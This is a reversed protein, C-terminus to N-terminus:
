SKKILDLFAREDLIPIGLQQALEYKKGPGVGAIVYDTKKSVSSSVRGGLKKILDEAEARTLTLTGTLVFQKESLPREEPSQVVREMETTVGAQALKEMVQRTEEEQFFAVVSAAIKPGIEPIATLEAASARSLAALSGFREALIEAARSGVFRIGLAYLLSGLGKQKSKEIAELLNDASKAGLRELGLLDDKQLFYLDAPDKVLGRDVLQAIIAPGIGEIDMGERGVFHLILEKLQAPCAIGTCRAAVEGESRVVPGGCVPCREPMRFEKEKGTRRESLVRVVEPIVDGARQIVVDDGIRIDKERIMDENHLTARSVIVGALPVPELVATPTLVGTRGVRLIIEKVRTVMQEAPFKFAVAWRSSKATNGMTEQLRLSNVKIVMGDIEYNLHHRKEVWETCYAIVEEINQFYGCHEQVPLGLQRLYKLVGVQTDLEVGECVLVQYNFIGLPRKATIKPDLQRLSGAAANRPNAFPIEGRSDRMENLRLFAKKSMFVEGRVVLRSPAAPLLLPLLRVARLNETIEEGTVGDGRTAGRVFVGNEYTLVISLGDIKPEVVYDVCMGALQRMRRDFDRLEASEFANSLSLLPTPHRVTQFGALPEGGVRQTPSDPTILEPYEMELKELERILLDYEQDTIRPADLVYYAYDHERILKRLEAARERLNRFSLM